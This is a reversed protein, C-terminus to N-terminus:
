SANFNYHVIHILCYIHYTALTRLSIHPLSLYLNVRCTIQGGAQMHLQHLVATVEFGNEKENVCRKLAIWQDKCAQGCM